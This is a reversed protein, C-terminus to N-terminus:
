EAEGEKKEWHYGCKMLKERDYFYVCKTCASVTLPTGYKVGIFLVDRGVYNDRIDEYVEQPLEVILKM